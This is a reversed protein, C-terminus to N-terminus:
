ALEFVIISIKPLSTKGFRRHVHLDSNNTAIDAITATATALVSAILAIFVIIRHEFGIGQQCIDIQAKGVLRPSGCGRENRGCGFGRTPSGGPQHDKAYGCYDTRPYGTAEENCGVGGPCQGGGRDKGILMTTPEDVQEELWNPKRREGIPSARVM